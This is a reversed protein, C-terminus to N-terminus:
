SSRCAPLRLRDLALRAQQRWLAGNIKWGLREYYLEGRHPPQIFNYQPAERFSETEVAFGALLERQSAFCDIMRRKRLRDAATLTVTTVAHQSPLFVGTALGGSEPHYGTMEIIAPASGKQAEILRCAASVAFSAADHDPHGGEYAHGFIADPAETHLLGLLRGTLEVLQFCAEQDTIGIIETRVGGAQGVELAAALETRRAAAYDAITAFGHAHADRGDCPAGDTVQVLLAKRFRCLQAGMGITEDDPHAVVIMIKSEITKRKVLSELISAAAASAILEPEGAPTGIGGCSKAASNPL